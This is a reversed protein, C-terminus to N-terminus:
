AGGAQLFFEYYDPHIDVMRHLDPIEFLGTREGDRGKKLLNDLSTITATFFYKSHTHLIKEAVLEMTERVIILGTEEWTERIAADFPDTDEPEIKGGPFKWLPQDKWDQIILVTSNNPGRIFVSAHYDKAYSM